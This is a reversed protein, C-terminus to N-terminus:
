KTELEKVRAELIAITEKDSKRKSRCEPCRKPELLKRDNYFEIEGDLWDFEAGCIKCVIKKAMRIIRLRRM